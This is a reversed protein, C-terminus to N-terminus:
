RDSDHPVDTIGGPQNTPQDATMLYIFDSLTYTRWKPSSALAPTDHDVTTAGANAKTQERNEENPSHPIFPREEIASSSNEQQERGTRGQTESEASVQLHVEQEEESVLAIGMTPYDAFIRTVEDTLQDYESQLLFLYDAQTKELLSKLNTVTGTEAVLEVDVGRETIFEVVQRLSESQDLVIIRM